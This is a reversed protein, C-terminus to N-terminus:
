CLVAYCLICLIGVRRHVETLTFLAKSAAQEGATTMRNNLVIQM